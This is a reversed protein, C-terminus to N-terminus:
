NAEHPKDAPALPWGKGPIEKANWFYYRYFRDGGFVDTYLVEGWVFIRKIESRIAALDADSIPGCHVPVDMGSTPALIAKGFGESAQAFPPANAPHIGMMTWNRYNTAPTRGFNVLKIYGEIFPEKKQTAEDTVVDILKTSGGEMFVYARLEQEAANKMTEASMQAADASQRAINIQENLRAEERVRKLAASMAENKAHELQGESARWLKESSQRLTWTFWAIFITAVATVAGAHTDVLDALAGMIGYAACYYQDSYNNECYEFYSPLM